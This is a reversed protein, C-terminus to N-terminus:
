RQATTLMAATFKPTPIDRRTRAKFEKPYTHPLEVNVKQPVEM